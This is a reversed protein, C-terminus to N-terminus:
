SNTGGIKILHNYGITYKSDKEFEFPKELYFASGAAIVHFQCDTRFTKVKNNEMRTHLNRTSKKNVMSFQKYTVDNSVYLDSLAYYWCDHEEAFRKKVSLDITEDISEGPKIEKEIFEVSFLSGKQGMHCFLKKNLVNFDLDDMIDVYVGFSFNKNMYVVEQKFFSKENSEHQRQANIGVQYETNFLESELVVDEEESHTENKEELNIKIYAPKIYIKELDILPLSLLGNSTNSAEQEMQLFKRSQGKLKINNMPNKIYISSDDSDKVIFIPSIKNIIGFTQDSKSFDFSKPGILSNMIIQQNEDYEYDSNLFGKQELVLYRLMGLITTQEPIFSSKTIYTSRGNKGDPYPLKLDTGFAYGELPKIKMLYRKM